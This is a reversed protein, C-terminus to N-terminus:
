TRAFTSMRRPCGASSPASRLRRWSDPPSGASKSRRPLRRAVSSARDHGSAGGARLTRARGTIALVEPGSLASVPQGLGPLAARVVALRAADPFPLPALLVDDIVTVVLSMAALGLSLTVIVVAALLPRRRWSRGALRVDQWLTDVPM